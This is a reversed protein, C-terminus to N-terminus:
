HPQSHWSHEPAALELAAAVRDSVARAKNGLRDLTGAAGGFQLVMLRPLLEELRTLDRQLPGQWTALKASVTIPVADQM